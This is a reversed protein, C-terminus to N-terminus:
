TKLTSLYFAWGSTQYLNMNEITVNRSNQIFTGAHDRASHRLYLTTASQPNVNLRM